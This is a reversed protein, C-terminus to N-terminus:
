ISELLNMLNQSPEVYAETTSLMRHGLLRQVDVLTAGHKYCARAAATGFSRRGSHSSAGEFGLESYLRHFWTSLANANTTRARKGGTKTWRELAVYRADPYRERFKILADRIDRHMPVYRERKGKAAAGSVFIERAPRGEADTLDAIRIRAVECARLGAKYTLLIILRDMEPCRSFERVYHLLKNLQEEDLVKARKTTM